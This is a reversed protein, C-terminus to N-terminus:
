GKQSTRTRKGKQIYFDKKKEGFSFLKEKGEGQDSETLVTSESCHPFHAASRM